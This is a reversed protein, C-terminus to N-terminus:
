FLRLLKACRLELLTSIEYNTFCFRTNNWLGTKSAATVLVWARDRLEPEMFVASHSLGLSQGQAGAGYVGRQSQSGLEAEIGYVVNM